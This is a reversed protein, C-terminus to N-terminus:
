EPLITFLFTQFESDNTHYLTDSNQSFFVDFFSIKRKYLMLLSMETKAPRTKWKEWLQDHHNKEMPKVFAVNVTTHETPTQKQKGVM